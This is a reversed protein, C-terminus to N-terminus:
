RRRVWLQLLGFIGFIIGAGALVPLWRPLTAEATTASAEVVPDIALVAGHGDKSAVRFNLRKGAVPLIAARGQADTRGTQVPITAGEAIVEFQEYSFAEGDAYRLTVVSVWAPAVVTQIEHAYTALSHLTLALLLVRIM